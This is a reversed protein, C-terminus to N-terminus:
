EINLVPVWVSSDLDESEDDNDDEVKDEEEDQKMLAPAMNYKPDILERKVIKKFHNAM